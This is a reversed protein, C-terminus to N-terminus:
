VTRAEGGGRQGEGRQGEEKGGGERGRGMDITTGRSPAQGITRGKRGKDGDRDETWREGGKGTDRQGGEGKARDGGGNGLPEEEGRERAATGGIPKEKGVEASRRARIGGERDLATAEEMVEEEDAGEAEGTEKEDAEEM